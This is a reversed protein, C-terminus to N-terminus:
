SAPSFFERVGPKDETPIGSTSDCVDGIGDGDWDEQGSNADDPCNDVADGIEDDDRTVRLIATAEGTLGEADTVKLGVLGDFEFNFTRTIEPVTTSAEYSGDGDLDWEYKLDSGDPDYSGSGDFTVSQGVKLVYSEGIWAFPKSVAENIIQQLAEDV